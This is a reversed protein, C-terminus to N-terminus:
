ICQIKYLLSTFLEWIYTSLMTRRLFCEWTQSKPPLCTSDFLIQFVIMAEREMFCQLFWHPKLKSPRQLRSIQVAAMLPWTLFADLWTFPWQQRKKREEEFHTASLTAAVSFKFSWSGIDTAENSRRVPIRFFDQSKWAEIRLQKFQTWPQSSWPKSSKLDVNWYIFCKMYWKVNQFRNVFAMADVLFVSRLNAAPLSSPQSVEQTILSM